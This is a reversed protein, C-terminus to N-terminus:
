LCNKVIPATLMGPLVQKTPANKDYYRNLIGNVTQIGFYNVYAQVHHNLTMYGFCVTRAFVYKATDKATCYQWKILSFESQENSSLQGWEMEGLAYIGDDFPVQGVFGNSPQYLTAYNFPSTIGNVCTIIGKLVCQNQLYQSVTDYLDPIEPMMAPDFGHPVVDLVNYKGYFNSSFKQGLYTAFNKNGPSQGAYPYTTINFNNGPNWYAQNDKLALAVVPSLGGGLSHGTVALEITGSANGVNNKLYEILTGNAGDTMNNFLNNIGTSIGTSIYNGQNTVSPNSQQPASAFYALNNSGAPPLPPWQVMSQAAFDESVWDFVSVSNTGAIALVYLTKSNDSPDKGKVLMMTNDTLCSDGDSPDHTYAVPGWVVEWTGLLTKVTDNTLVANVCSDAHQQLVQPTGQMGSNIDVIWCLSFVTADKGYPQGLGTASQDPTPGTCHWASLALVAFALCTAVHKLNSM